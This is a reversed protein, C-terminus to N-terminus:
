GHASHTAFTKRIARAGAKNKFSKEVAEAVSRGSLLANNVSGYSLHDGCFFLGDKEEHYKLAHHRRINPLGNKIHYTKLHIWDNVKIGFWDILEQLVQDILEEDDIDNTSQLTVNILHSGPPAYSPQITTPVFVSSVLGKVDGNLLIIPSNVPPTKTTFYMCTVPKFVTEVKYEPLIKEIDHPPLSVVIKKAQVFDGNSLEIGEERIQKVRSHLHITGEQLREALQVPISGIGYAPLANEEFAFTKLMSCFVGASISMTEDYFIAKTLPRFFSQIIIDSFGKEQIFELTTKGSLQKLNDESFTFLQSLLSVLKVKDKFTFIPAVALSLSDGIKRLPNTVLHFNNNYHVMAGPYVPELRLTRYELLRKSEAFGKQFFHLGRDLIFGDVYDTKCRGGVKANSEFVAVKYGKEQLHYAASLGSLGAGIIAVDLMSLEGEL